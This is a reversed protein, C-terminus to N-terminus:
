IAKIRTSQKPVKITYTILSDDEMKESTANIGAAQMITLARNITSNFIRLDKIIIIPKNKHHPKKLIDLALKETAKVSLKQAIVKQCVVSLKESEQLPLLARAHRETFGNASLEALIPPPLKLLRLKNAISPQSFGLKKAAESQSLSNESIYSSIAKIEEFFNLDERQINEILALTTSAKEDVAQIIAPITPLDLRKFAMLRREGAILEYNQKSIKRLTIPNILGNEKISEALSDIDYSNFIKRPQNPNPVIQSVPVNLVSKGSDFLQLM